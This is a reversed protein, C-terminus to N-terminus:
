DLLDQTSMKPPLFTGLRQFAMGTNKKRASRMKEINAEEVALENEAREEERARIEETLENM